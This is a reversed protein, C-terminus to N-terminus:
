AKMNQSIAQLMDARQKIVKSMMDVLQSLASELNQTVGMIYTRYSSIQGVDANFEDASLTHNKLGDKLDALKQDMGALEGMLFNESSRIGEETGILWDWAGSLGFEEKLRRAVEDTYQTPDEESAAGGEGAPTPPSIAATLAQMVAQPDTAASHDALAAFSMLEPSDLVLNQIFDNMEPDARAYLADFNVEGVESYLSQVLTPNIIEMLQLYALQWYAQFAPDNLLAPDIGTTGDLAHTYIEPNIGTQACYEEVYNKLDAIQQNQGATYNIPAM